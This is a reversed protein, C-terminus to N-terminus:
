AELYHSINIANNSEIQLHENTQGQILIHRRSERVNYIAM